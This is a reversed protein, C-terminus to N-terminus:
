RLVITEWALPILILNIIIGIVIFVKQEFNYAELTKYYKPLALRNAFIGAIINPIIPIPILGILCIKYAGNLLGWLVPILFAAWNFSNIIKDSGILTNAPIRKNYYDLEEKIQVQRLHKLEKNFLDNYLYKKFFYTILWLVFIIWAVLVIILM